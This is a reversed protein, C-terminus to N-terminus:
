WFCTILFFHLYMGINKNKILLNITNIIYLWVYSHDTAMKALWITVIDIIYSDMAFLQEKYIITKLIRKIKAHFEVIEM